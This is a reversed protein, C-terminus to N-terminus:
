IGLVGLDVFHHLPQLLLDLLFFDLLHVVALVLKIVLQVDQITTGMFSLGLFNVVLKLGKQM